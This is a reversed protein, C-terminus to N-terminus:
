ISLFPLKTKMTTHPAVGQGFIMLAKRSLSKVATWPSRYKKTSAFNKVSCSTFTSFLLGGSPRMYIESFVLCKAIEKEDTISGLCTTKREKELCIRQADQKNINYTVPPTHWSPGISGTVAAPSWTDPAVRGSTCHCSGWPVVATGRGRSRSDPSTLFLQIIQIQYSFM